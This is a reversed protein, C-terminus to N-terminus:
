TTLWSVTWEPHAAKGMLADFLNLSVTAASVAAHMLKLLRKKYFFYKRMKQVPSINIKTTATLDRVILSREFFTNVNHSFLSLIYFDSIQSCFPDKFVSCFSAYALTEISVLRTLN